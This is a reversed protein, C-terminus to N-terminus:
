KYNKSQIAKFITHQKRLKRFSRISKQSIVRERKGTNKKNEETGLKGLCTCENIKEPCTWIKESCNQCRVYMWGKMMIALSRIPSNAV